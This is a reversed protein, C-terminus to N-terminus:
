SCKRSGWLRERLYEAVVPGEAKRKAVAMTLAYLEAGPVYLESGDLALFVLGCTLGTRKNSDQFSQSRGFM